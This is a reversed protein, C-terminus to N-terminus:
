RIDRHIGMSVISRIAAEARAAIDPSVPAMVGDAAGSVLGGMASSPHPWRMVTPHMPQLQLMEAEIIPAKGALDQRRGKIIAGQVLAGVMWRQHLQEQLRPPYRTM